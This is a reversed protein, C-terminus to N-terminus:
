PKVPLKKVPRVRSGTTHLMANRSCWVSGVMTVVAAGMLDLGVGAGVGYGDVSAMSGGLERAEM